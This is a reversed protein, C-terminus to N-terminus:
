GRKRVQLLRISLLRYRRKRYLMIGTDPNEHLENIYIGFRQGCHLIGSASRSYNWQDDDPFDGADLGWRPKAHYMPQPFERGRIPRCEWLLQGNEARYGEQLSATAINLVAESQAARWRFQQMAQTGFSALLAVISIGVMLEILSFVTPSKWLESNLSSLRPVCTLEDADNGFNQDCFQSSGRIPGCDRLRARRHFDFVGCRLRCSSPRELGWSRM